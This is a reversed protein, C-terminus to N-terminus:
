CFVSDSVASCEVAAKRDGWVGSDFCDDDAFAAAVGLCAIGIATQKYRGFYRALGPFLIIGSLTM